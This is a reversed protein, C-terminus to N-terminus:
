IKSVGVQLVKIKVKIEIGIPNHRRHHHLGGDITTTTTTYQYALEPLCFTLVALESAIPKKEKKKRMKKRKKNVFRLKKKKQGKFFNPKPRLFYQL